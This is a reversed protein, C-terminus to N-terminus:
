ASTFFTLVQERRLLDIPVQCGREQLARMLQVTAPPALGSTELNPDALHVRASGQQLVRGEQLIVVHTALEAVLDMDHSILVITTGQEQLRHFIASMGASARPDLGATPEDLILVEPNMALVGALAVRRKEGGSLLLPSRQHFTEWPLDVTELARRTLDDIAAPALGLNRPGFAVDAAVTEEFLQLEPFQFVLGVRRRIQPLAQTWIDQGDLLVYGRQPKLLGNFHQALTTKGSGSPGLLATICGTAINVTVDDLGIQRQPLDPDYTYHLHATNLKSPSTEQPPPTPWPSAPHPLLPALADALQEVSCHLPINWQRQQQLQRALANTFPLDLGIAQLQAGDSFIEDPTGDGVVSGQHLVIIRRARAAATLDQTIYITAIAFQAQLEQLFQDVQHRSQPDLLSTPEDLVLYNPRLAVAAAIAVRQKEGGSLYHPPHHRYSELHFVRLMEDVRRHMEDTPLAINELGFAIEAEVSTSVLQDDPNQSVMGVRQRISFLAQPDDTPLDDVLVRGSHPQFLGNLCRALTSKGSGNPGIIALREGPHIDLQIDQLAPAFDGYSFCLDQVCIM